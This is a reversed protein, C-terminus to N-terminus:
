GASAMGLVVQRCTEADALARHGGPPIGFRHAAADLKHWRFGSRERMGAFEAYRRMACEDRFRPMALALAGCCQRLIRTDYSANYIVVRRGDVVPLLHNYVMDWGPATAVDDDYLGHIASSAAPIPRRPRVLTDLLVHGSADVVAIDIIEAFADLGTTETDLFVTDPDALIQQAWTVTRSAPPTSSSHHFM